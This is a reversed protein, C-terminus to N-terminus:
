GSVHKRPNRSPLLAPSEGATAGNDVVFATGTTMTGQDSVLYLIAHAIEEPSILKSANGLPSHTGRALYIRQMMPTDVDGPCVCNVTIGDAAYDIAMAKTLLIIGAKSACYAPQNRSAVIGSNSSVSTIVGGGGNKRMAPIVYKSCLFASKLNINIVSDWDNESMDAVAKRPGEIGANNVLIDLRGFAKLTEDVIRKADVARSVDAQIVMSDSPGIRLLSQTEKLAELTRGVLVVRVGNQSLLQATARGIGSGAGTVIAVKGM